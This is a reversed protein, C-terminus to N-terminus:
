YATMRFVTIKKSQLLPSQIWQKYNRFRYGSKVHGSIFNETTKCKNPCDAAVSTIAQSTPAIVGNPM